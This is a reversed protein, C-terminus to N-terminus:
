KCNWIVASPQSSSPPIVAGFMFFCEGQLAIDNLVGPVSLTVIESYGFTANTLQWLTVSDPRIEAIVPDLNSPGRPFVTLRVPTRTRTVSTSLPYVTKPSPAVTLNQVGWALVKGSTTTTLVHANSASGDILLMSVIAGAGTKKSTRILKWPNTQFLFFEQGNQYRTIVYLNRFMFLIEGVANKAPLSFTTAPTNPKLIEFALIKGVDTGLLVQSVKSGLSGFAVTTIKDSITGSLLPTPASQPLTSTRWVAFGKGGAAVFFEGSDSFQIITPSPVKTSTIVNATQFSGGTRTWVFIKAFGGPGMGIGALYPVNKYKKFVLKQFFTNKDGPALPLASPSKFTLPKKCQSACMSPFVAGPPVWNPDKAEPVSEPSSEMTTESPQEVVGGDQTFEPDTPVEPFDTVFEQSTDPQSDPPTDNGAEPALEPSTDPQADPSDDPPSENGSADPLGEDKKESLIPDEPIATYLRCSQNASTTSKLGEPDPAFEAFTPGNSQSQRPRFELVFECRSDDRMCNTLDEDRFSLCEKAQLDNMARAYNPNNSDIEPQEELGYFRFRIPTTANNTLGQLRISLGPKINTGDWGWFEGNDRLQGLASQYTQGQSIVICGYVKDRTDPNEHLEEQTPSQRWPNCADDPTPNSFWERRQSCGQFSSWVLSFFSLAAGLLIWRPWCMRTSKM